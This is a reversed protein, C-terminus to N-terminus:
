GARLIKFLVDSLPEISCPHGEYVDLSDKIEFVGHNLRKDGNFWMRARYDIRLHESEVWFHAISGGEFTLTGVYAQYPLRNRALLTVVLRTMGDCEVPATDLPDLLMELRAQLLYDIDM